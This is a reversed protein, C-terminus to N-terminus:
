LISVVEINWYCNSSDRGGERGSINWFLTLDLYTDPRRTVGGGGGGCCCIDPKRNHNGLQYM